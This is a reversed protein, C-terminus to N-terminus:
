PSATSSPTPRPTMILLNQAFQGYFPIVVRREYHRAILDALQAGSEPDGAWLELDREVLCLINARHGRLDALLQNGNVLHRRAASDDDIDRWFAFEGMEYGPLLTLGTLAGLETHHTLLRDGPRALIRLADVAQQIPAPGGRGDPPVEYAQLPATIAALIAFLLVRRRPQPTSGQTLWVASPIVAFMINAAQYWSAGIIRTAHLLTTAAFAAFAAAALVHRNDPYQGAQRAAHWSRAWAITAAVLAIMLIGQDLAVGLLFERLDHLDFTANDLYYPHTRYFESHFTWTGFLLNGDAAGAATVLILIAAALAAARLGTARPPGPMSVAWLGMVAVAPLLSLRTLAALAICGMCGYRKLPVENAGAAFWLAAATLLSTLAWPCIVATDFAFKRNLALLAGALFGAWTNRGLRRAANMALWLALLGMGVSIGRAAPVSNGVMPLLLGYVYPLLPTQTFLFDHYPLRGKMVNHAALLYWGEDSTFRGHRAVPISLSLYFISALAVGVLWWPSCRDNVRAMGSTLM